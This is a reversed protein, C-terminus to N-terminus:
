ERVVKEISVLRDFDDPTATDRGPGGSLADTGDIGTIVDNGGRGAGGQALIAHYGAPGRLDLTLADAVGLGAAGTALLAHM